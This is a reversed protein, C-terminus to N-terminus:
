SEDEISQDRLKSLYDHSGYFCIPPWVTVYVAERKTGSRRNPEQFPHVRGNVSYMPNKFAARAEPMMLIEGKEFAADAPSAGDGLFVTRLYDLVQSTTLTCVDEARTRDHFSLRAAYRRAQGRPSPRHPM